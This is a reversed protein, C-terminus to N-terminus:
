AIPLTLIFRAGRGPASELAIDGGMARALRRSIYLGLGTGGPESADVREFKEFIRAQDEPAIGRGQDAVIVRAGQGARECRVWLTGGEPSYRVANGILNVLIQLVRRFDGSAPLMQGEGPRDIRVSRDSARVGLLAAARRAVDALDIPGPAIRFDPREIAQLDVLDGVLALLHRGATAIDAAYTAYDQRLPGDAHSRITEASAVIRDLPGRLAADLRQGFADGDIADGPVLRAPPALLVASGRFGAFRNAGDRMPLGSLRVRRDGGAITAIQNDFRTQTALADLIPLAGAADPLLTFLRTLPDGVAAMGAPVLATLKLAADTTWTWDADARLFDNERVSADDASPLLSARDNWGGIALRVDQGDPTARVWLDLDGDAGAVVVGRSVIIGLRRALRVIAALAPPALVGSDSGGAGLHLAALPPDASVLRGAADVLGHVAANTATTTM